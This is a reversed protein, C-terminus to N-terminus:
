AAEKLFHALKSLLDRSVRGELVDTAFKVVEVSEATVKVRGDEEVQELSGKKRYNAITPVSVDLRTAAEEQTFTQM